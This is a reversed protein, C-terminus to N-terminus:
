LNEYLFRGATQLSSIVTEDVAKRESVTNVIKALENQRVPILQLAAICAIILVAAAARLLSFGTGSPATSDGVLHEANSRSSVVDLPQPVPPVEVASTERDFYARIESKMYRTSVQKKRM